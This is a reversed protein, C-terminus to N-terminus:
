TWDSGEGCGSGTWGSWGVYGIDTDNWILDAVKQFLQVDPQQSIILRQLKPGRPSFAFTLHSYSEQKQINHCSQKQLNHCWQKPFTNCKLKNSLRQVKLQLRIWWFFQLQQLLGLWMLWFWLRMLIIKEVVSIRYMMIGFTAYLVLAKFRFVQVYCNIFSVFISIM